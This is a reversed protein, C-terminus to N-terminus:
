FNENQLFLRYGRVAGLVIIPQTSQTPASVEKSLLDITVDEPNRSLPDASHNHVRNLVARKSPLIQYLPLAGAHTSRRPDFTTRTYQHPRPRYLQFLTSDVANPFITRYEGPIAAASQGFKHSREMSDNSHYLSCYAHCIYTNM